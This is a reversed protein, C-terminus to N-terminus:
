TRSGDGSRDPRRLGGRDDRLGAEAGGSASGNLSAQDLSM